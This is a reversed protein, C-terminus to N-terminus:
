KRKKRTENWITFIILVETAALMVAMNSLSFHFVYGIIIVIYISIGTFLTGEIFDYFFTDKKEKKRNEFVTIAMSNIVVLPATLAASLLVLKVWDLSSILEPKFLYIGAIGPLIIFVVAFIGLVVAKDKLTKLDGILEMPLFRLMDLGMSYFSVRRRYDARPPM